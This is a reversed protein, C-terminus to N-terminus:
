PSNLDGLIVFDKTTFGPSLDVNALQNPRTKM